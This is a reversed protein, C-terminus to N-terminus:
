INKQNYLNIGNAKVVYAFSEKSGMSYLPNYLTPQTYYVASDTQCAFLCMALSMSKPGYPAFLVRKKGFNTLAQIKDFTDSVSLSNLRYVQKIDIKSLSDMQNLFNWTRQYTPPGPPFPFLFKVDIKSFKDKLLHSLGLPMFGIGVIAIEFEQDPDDLQFLPIHSWDHPDESLDKESYKIPTSCTIILNKILDSKLIIKVIPFFFRKPFCSIDLIINGTSTEIFRRISSIILDTKELLDHRETLIEKHIKQFNDNRLQSHYITEIPDVIEFFLCTSLNKYDKSINISSVCREETSLCGLFDYTDINSKQLLWELKGWPRFCFDM